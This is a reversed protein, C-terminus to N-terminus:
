LYLYELFFRLLRQMKHALYRHHLILLQKIYQIVGQEYEVPELDSRPGDKLKYGYPVRGIFEGKEKKQDMSEQVRQSIMGAELEAVGIFMHAIFKGQPTSTDLKEKAFLEETTSYFKLNPNNKQGEVRNAEFPEVVSTIKVDNKLEDQQYAKIHSQQAIKGFGIIAANLM